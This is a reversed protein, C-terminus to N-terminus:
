NAKKKTNFPVKLDFYVTKPGRGDEGDSTGGHVDDLLHNKNTYVQISDICPAASRPPPPPLITHRAHPLNSCHLVTHYSCGGADHKPTWYENM